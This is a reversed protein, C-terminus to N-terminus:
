LGGRLGHVQVLSSHEGGIGLQAALDCMALLFLPWTVCTSGAWALCRRSLLLPRPIDQLACLERAEMCSQIGSSVMVLKNRAANFLELTRQVDHSTTNMEAGCEAGTPDRGLKEQLSAQIAKVKQLM